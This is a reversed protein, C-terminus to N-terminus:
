ILYMYMCFHTFWVELVGGEAFRTWGEDQGEADTKPSVEIAVSPPTSKGALSAPILSFRIQRFDTCCEAPSVGVACSGLARQAGNLYDIILGKCFGTDKCRYIWVRSVHELRASSFCGNEIPPPHKPAVPSFDACKDSQPYIHSVKYPSWINKPDELDHILTSQRSIEYVAAKDHGYWPGVTFDGTLSTRFQERRHASSANSVSVPIVLLDSVCHSVRNYKRRGGFGCYKVGFATPTDEPPLPVYIWSASYRDKREMQWFTEEATPKSSTHAHIRVTKQVNTFLTIGFCTSLDIAALYYPTRGSAFDSKCDPLMPPNPVNWVRPILGFGQDKLRCTGYRFECESEALAAVVHLEEGLRSSRTPAESPEIIRIGQSDIVLRRPSMTSIGFVPPAGRQWYQVKALRVSHLWGDAETPMSNVLKQTIELRCLVDTGLYKCIEAKIEHPLRDLSDCCLLEAAKSIISQM